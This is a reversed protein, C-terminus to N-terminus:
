SKPKNSKYEYWMHRAKRIDSAQTRKTGGALLVILCQLDVSFYIRLGPGSHIRREWIGGRLNRSDSFNGREFGTLAATVKRAAQVDLSEFWDQFPARGRIDHYVSVEFSESPLM